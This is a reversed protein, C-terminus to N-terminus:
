ESAAAGTRFFGRVAEEFVANAIERLNVQSAMNSKVWQKYGPVRDNPALDGKSDKLDSATKVMAWLARREENWNEQTYDITLVTEDEKEVQHKGFVDKILDSGFEQEYVELTYLTAMIEVVEDGISVLM